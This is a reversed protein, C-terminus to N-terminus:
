DLRVTGHTRERRPKRAKVPASAPTDNAMHLRLRVEGEAMKEAAAIDAISRGKKAARAVRATQVATRRGPAAPRQSIETAVARFASETTDTLLAVADGVQTLRVELPRLRGLARACRRLLAAQLVTIVGLGVLVNTLM